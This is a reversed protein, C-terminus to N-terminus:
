MLRVRDFWVGNFFLLFFFILFLFFLFGCGGFVGVRGKAMRGKRCGGGEEGVHGFAGMESAAAACSSAVAIVIVMVRAATAAATTTTSTATAGGRDGPTAAAVSPSLMMLSFLRLLLINEIQAFIHVLGNRHFKTTATFTHPRIVGGGGFGGGGTKESESTKMGEQVDPISARQEDGEDHNGDIGCHHLVVCTM